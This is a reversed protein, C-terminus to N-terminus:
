PWYVTETRGRLSSFNMFLESWLSNSGGTHPNEPCSRDVTDGGLIWHEKQRPKRNTVKLSICELSWLNNHHRRFDKCLLSVALVTVLMCLLTCNVIGLFSGKRRDGRQSQVQEV